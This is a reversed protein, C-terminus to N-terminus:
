AVLEPFPQVQKYALDDGVRLAEVELRSVAPPDVQPAEWLMEEEPFDGVAYADRNHTMM